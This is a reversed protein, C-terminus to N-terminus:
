IDYDSHRAPFHKQYWLQLHTFIYGLLFAVMCGYLVEGTRSLALLMAERWHVNPAMAAMIVISVTCPALKWSAPYNKFSTSIIVSVAVGALLSIVSGGAFYVFVLGVLCGVITNVVRSVTAERLATFDPDSIVIVSIIAWIKKMDEVFFLSYWVILCGLVIRVAYLISKINFSFLPM